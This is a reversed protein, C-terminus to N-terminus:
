IKVTHLLAVSKSGKCGNSLFNIAQKSASAKGDAKSDEVGLGGSSRAEKHIPM